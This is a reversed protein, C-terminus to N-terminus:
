SVEMDDSSDSTYQFAKRNLHRSITAIQPEGDAVSRAGVTGGDGQSLGNYLEAYASLVSM